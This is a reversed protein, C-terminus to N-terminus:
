PAPVGGARRPRGRGVRDLVLAISPVVAGATVAGGFADTPYDINLVLVAWSIPAGVALAAAPVSRRTRRRDRAGALAPALSPAWATAFAV